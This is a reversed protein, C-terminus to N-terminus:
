RKGNDNIIRELEELDDSDERIACGCFHFEYNCGVCEVGNKDCFNCCMNDM